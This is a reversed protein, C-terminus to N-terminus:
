INQMKRMKENEEDNIVNIAKNENKIKDTNDLVNNINKSNLKQYKKNM